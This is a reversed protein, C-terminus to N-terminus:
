DRPSPSTYLLCLSPPTSPASAAQRTRSDASLQFALAEPPTATDAAVTPLLKGARADRMIRRNWENPNGRKMHPVKVTSMAAGSDQLVFARGSQAALPQAGDGGFGAAANMADRMADVKQRFQTRKLYSEMQIASFGIPCEAAERFKVRNATTQRDRMKGIEEIQVSPPLRGLAEADLAAAARPTGIFPHRIM